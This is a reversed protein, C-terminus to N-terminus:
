RNYLKRRMEEARESPSKKVTISTESGKLYGTPSPARQSNSLKRERENIADLKGDLRLLEGIQRDWSLSNLRNVSKPFYKAFKYLKEPSIRQSPLLHLTEQQLRYPNKGFIDAAEDNEAILDDYDRKFRNMQEQQLHAAYNNQMPAQQNSQANEDYNQQSPYPEQNGSIMSEMASLRAMMDEREEELRRIKDVLRKNRPRSKKRPSKQYSEKPVSESSEEENIDAEEDGEENPMEPESSEYPESPDEFSEEEMEIGNPQDTISEEEVEQPIPRADIDRIKNKYAKKDM